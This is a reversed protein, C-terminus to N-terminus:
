SAPWCHDSGPRAATHCCSACAPRWFRAGPWGNGRQLTPHASTTGAGPWLIYLAAIALAMCCLLSDNIDFFTLSIAIANRNAYVNNPDGGVAAWRVLGFLARALGALMIFRMLEQAHVRTRFSQLLLFIAPAMWVIHCVREAGASGSVKVGSALAAGVHLVLLVLWGTFWPRLNCEPTALGAFAASTRACCWAGLVCWLVLAFLLMGSGRSYVGGTAFM